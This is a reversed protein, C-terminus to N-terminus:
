RNETVRHILSQEQNKLKTQNPKTTKFKETKRNERALM